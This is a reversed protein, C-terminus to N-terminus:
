FINTKMEWMTEKMPKRRELRCVETWTHYKETRAPESVQLSKTCDKISATTKLILASSTESKFTEVEPQEENEFESDESKSDEDDRFSTEESQVTNELSRLNNKRHFTKACTACTHTNAMDLTVWYFHM